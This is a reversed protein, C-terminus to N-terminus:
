NEDGKRDKSVKINKNNGGRQSQSAIAIGFGTFQQVVSITFYTGMVGLFIGLISLNTGPWHISFLDYILDFFTNLFSSAGSTFM